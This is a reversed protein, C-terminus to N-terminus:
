PDLTPYPNHLDLKQMIQSEYQQMLDADADCVHDFGFLHLMGHIILHLIHAHTSLVLHQAEKAVFDAALIIDGLPEHMDFEPGEQMPFSLVDTVKDKDRWQANLSKVVDDSAFRICLEVDDAVRDIVHCTQLIAHRIVDKEPLSIDVDDDVIIDIMKM